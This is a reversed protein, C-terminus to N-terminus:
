YSHAGHAGVVVEINLIAAWIARPRWSPRDYAGQLRVRSFHSPYFTTQLALRHRGGDEDPDLYDDAVGSVFDHRAGVEWREDIQWVLQSYMGWDRLVGRPVQRNRQMAEVTLSVSQRGVAAVPRYRLYLDTAYIATRNDNGTPNPGLQSSLGWSLGWDDSLPFFQKVAVTFLVDEFRAIGLDDGGYFSRACCAGGPDGGSILVEAYWPLPALWSLEVGLGRSGEGGLMKGNVLPQDVFHWSHPHTPNLRGFRTLFQGARLQLRGPLALTTAYAEEVEVGFQSFVIMAQFRFFPDVNSAVFMELQQFTFGTRQPDHAGSQLPEDSFYAVAADLIFSIDPNMSQLIAGLGSPKAAAVPPAPADARLDDALARELAELEDGSVDGGQREEPGAPAAAGLALGLAVWSGVRAAQGAITAPHRPARWTV